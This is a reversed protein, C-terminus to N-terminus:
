GPFLAVGVKAAIRFVADNLRFPHQLLAEMTKELLRALEGDHKVEPLVM